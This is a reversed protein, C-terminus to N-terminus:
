ATFCWMKNNRYMKLINGGFYGLGMKESLYGGFFGKKRPFVVGQTANILTKLVSVRKRRYIYIYISRNNPGRVLYERPGSFSLNLLFCTIKHEQM